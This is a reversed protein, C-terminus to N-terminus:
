PRSFHQILRNSLDGPREEPLWHGANPYSGGDLDTALGSTRMAELLYPPGATLALVPMELPSEAFVRFADADADFARYWEFSASLADPNSYARVYSDRAERTLAEPAGANADYFHNLYVGVDGDGLLREAVHDPAQHFDFHWSRPSANVQSWLPEIGPLAIELIAVTRVSAPYLSAYAYAVLGGIDHGVLHVAGLDLAEAMDRVARAMRAKTYATDLPASGNVGPLDVAYVRFGAESLRQRVADWSRWTQPWGHLLVVPAGFEPGSVAYHLPSAGATGHALDPAWAWDTPPTATQTAGSTALATFALALTALRLLDLM